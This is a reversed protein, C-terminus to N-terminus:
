SVTEASYRAILGSRVAYRYVRSFGYGAVAIYAFALATAGLLPALEPVRGDLVTRMSEFVYSPPLAYAVVRMWHPLVALPYFVGAFPSLLAPLAPELPVPAAVPATFTPSLLAVSVSVSVGCASKRMVLVSPCSVAM